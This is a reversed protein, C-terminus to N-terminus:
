FKVIKKTLNGQPTIVQLLYSGAIISETNIVAQNSESLIARGDIGIIRLLLIDSDAEVEIITSFPDPFVTISDDELQDDVSDALPSYDCNPHAPAFTNPTEYNLMDNSYCILEGNCGNAVTNFYFGSFSESSSGIGEIVQDTIYFFDSDLSVINQIKLNQGDIVTESVETVFEILERATTDSDEYFTASFAGRNFPDFRIITDGVEAAFDFLLLFSSDQQFYIQDGDEWVILSDGTYRLVTDLNTSHYARILSCDKDDIILEKEVVYNFHSGACGIESSHFESTREYNWEAGLPAFSKQSLCIFPTLILFFSLQKM